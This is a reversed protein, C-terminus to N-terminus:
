MVSGIFYEILRMSVMTRYVASSRQDDIPQIQDKYFEKIEPLLESLDSLRKGKIFEEVKLNSVVRPAVAGLAMRIDEVVGDATRALGAFSVKSLADAKRTGVKKYFSRNYTNVPINIAVLLENGKLDIQGPGKIFEAVSLQRCGLASELILSANLAYLPPLTDGAPSANCINGGLTAANRIAPSAMGVIAQKLIQPVKQHELIAALTAAAGITLNEQNSQITKLSAIEGIFLTGQEFRPITGAWSRKRVMLDTGGAYPTLRHNNLLELAEALTKPAMMEVM